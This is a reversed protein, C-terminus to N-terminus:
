GETVKKKTPSSKKPGTSSKMEPEKLVKPKLEKPPTKKVKTKSEKKPLKKGEPKVTKKSTEKGMPQLELPISKKVPPKIMIKPIVPADPTLETKSNFRARPQTEKKSGFKGRRQSDNRSGFKSSSQLENKPRDEKSTLYWGAEQSILDVDKLMVTIRDGSGFIGGHRSGRLRMNSEEYIFYDNDLESIHLFGELMLELVEFYIGFNKVRAIIAEYERYPDADRMNKLLRLKKLLVVSNEAKASIREQESCRLSITQLYELDDSEGFLLRHIVLDIYRRIPSTFHCYYTLSLGYHGINEASYTALRMRRIYHTALYNSYPTDAADEFLKQLDQPTPNDSIKFGFAAALMAFDRLNEEAPVDHVRYTVNKGQNTLHTAITENAKLMFEEVLQHTIDYAVYDTKYPVGKEDVIIVLDPLSFEISGRQYRQKKLLGCLEVMLHLTPSHISEKKGDLVLKAEKYSFRKQSKIVSRLIQYDVLEGHPNFRMLVSVTLRNVDAKLSCLNNSLAPPLMPSCFGPFYTSNCREQAELDLATGIKVYSSVDAIHVGLHYFGKEDKTLNLADDFDKATDPDITFTELHRLDERAKIETQSVRNGFKTAEELVKLPFESKLEFEEIAATIDCSPDSIHGLYNALRCVTESEPTGWEVVELVVRDGVQLDRETAPLVVVRKQSGLLPIRAILEGYRDVEKIIGAMHTRSRSLITIVKGEPGKESVFDTNVLVEVTDGDVANKTLHKPIFIDQPYTTSDDPQVFGFGRPHLHILGTMINLPVAKLSYRGDILVLLGNHIHTQLIEQFIPIHQEPLSLRRMLEQETMPNIFGKGTIFQESIKLLNQFLKEEKASRLTIPKASKKTKKISKTM